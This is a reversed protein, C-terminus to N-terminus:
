APSLASSLSAAPYLAVGAPSPERRVLAAAELRSVQKSAASASLDLARCLEAQTLGPRELLLQAVRRATDGRFIGVVRQQDRPVAGPLFYCRHHGVRQSTVLGARELRDLHHMTAGWSTGLAQAIAAPGVGPRARVLGIVRERREHDLLEAPEIRTYLALGLLRALGLQELLLVLLAGGAVAVAEEPAEGLAAQARAALTRSPAPELAVGAAPAELALPPLSAPAPASAEVRLGVADLADVRADLALASAGPVCLALLAVAVLTLSRLM